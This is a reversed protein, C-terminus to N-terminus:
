VEPSKIFDALVAQLKKAAHHEQRQKKTWAKRRSKLGGKQGALKARELGTLGDKGIKNSAFGGTGSAKGGKRGINAYYDKGQRKINTKYAKKGGAITGSM